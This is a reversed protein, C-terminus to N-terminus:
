KIIRDIMKDVEEDTFSDIFRDRDIGAGSSLTRDITVLLRDYIYQKPGDEESTEGELVDEKYDKYLGVLIDKMLGRYISKEKAGVTSEGVRNKPRWTEYLDRMYDFRSSIYPIEEQPVKGWGWAWDIFDKNTEDWPNAGIRRLDSIYEAALDDVDEHRYEVGETLTFPDSEVDDIVADVETIVDTIIADMEDKTFANLFEDVNEIKFALAYFEQIADKLHDLIYDKASESTEPKELYDYYLDMVIEYMMDKNSAAEDIKKSENLGDTDISFLFDDVMDEVEKEDLATSVDVYDVDMIDCYYELREPIKKIIYKKAAEEDAFDGDEFYDDQQFIQEIVDKYIKKYDIEKGENVSEIPAQAYVWSPVKTTPIYYKGYDARIQNVIDHKIRGLVIGRKNGKPFPLSIMYIRAPGNITRVAKPLQIWIKDAPKDDIIEDTFNSYLDSALEADQANLDTTKMLFVNVTFNSNKGKRLEIYVNSPVVKEAARRKKGRFAYWEKAIALADDYSAFDDKFKNYLNTAYKRIPIFRASGPQATGNETNTLAWDLQCQDLFESYKDTDAAEKILKHEILVKNMSDRFVNDFIKRSISEFNLEIQPNMKTVDPVKIEEVQGKSADQVKPTKNPDMEEPKPLDSAKRGMFRKDDGEIELPVTVKDGKFGDEPIEINKPEPDSEPEKEKKDEKKEDEKKDEKVDSQIPIDSTPVGNEVEKVENLAVSSKDISAYLTKIMTGLEKHNKWWNVREKKSQIKFLETLQKLIENDSVSEVFMDITPKIKAALETDILAIDNILELAAKESKTKDMDLREKISLYKSNINVV